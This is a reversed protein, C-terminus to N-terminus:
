IGTAGGQVVLIHGGFLRCVNAFTQQAGGGYEESRKRLLRLCQDKGQYVAAGCVGSRRGVCLVKEDKLYILKFTMKGSWGIYLLWQTM